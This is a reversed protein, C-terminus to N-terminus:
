VSGRRARIDSSKNMEPCRRNKKTAPLRSPSKRRVSRRAIQHTPLWVARRYNKGRPHLRWHPGRRAHLSVEGIVGNCLGVRKKPSSILSILRFSCRCFLLGKGLNKPSFISGARVHTLARPFQRTVVSGGERKLGLKSVRIVLRRSIRIRWFFGFAWLPPFVGRGAGRLEM